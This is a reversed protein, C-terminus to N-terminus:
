QPGQGGSPFRRRRRYQITSVVDKLGHHDVPASSENHVKDILYHHFEETTRKMKEIATIIFNDPLNDTENLTVLAPLLYRATVNGGAGLLVIHRIM